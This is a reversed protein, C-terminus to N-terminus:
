LEESRIEMGLTHSKPELGNINDKKIFIIYFSKYDQPKVLAKKIIYAIGKLKTANSDVNKGTPVKTSNILCVTLCSDIANKDGWNEYDISECNYEKILSDITKGNDAFEPQNIAATVKNKTESGSCNFFCLAIAILYFLRTVVKIITLNTTLNCM